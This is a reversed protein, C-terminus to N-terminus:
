CYSTLRFARLQPPSGGRAIWNLVAAHADAIHNWNFAKGVWSRGREGMMRLDQDSMTMATTLTEVISHIDLNIWWGCGYTKLEEWPANRTTIVPVGHALAESVVNGFNESHTPLIFLNSSHYLNSKEEGFVPGRWFVRKLGLGSALLKMEEEHGKENIGAIVLDWEPFTSELLAWARLLYPLGKKPHIRSLFLLRHRAGGEANVEKRSAVLPAGNPILAIPQKLGFERFYNLEMKSTARLCVAEHLHKSEYLILALRKKWYSHRIAWPDLMGHPTVMYPIRGIRRSNWLSPYLWLGHINVADPKLHSMVSSLDTMWRFSPWARTNLAHVNNGWDRWAEPADPDLSGVTHIDFPSRSQMAKILPPIATALGGSSPSLLPALMAVRM